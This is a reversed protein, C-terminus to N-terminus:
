LLPGATASVAGTSYAVAPFNPLLERDAWALVRGALSESALIVYEVNKNESLGARKRGHVGFGEVQFSSYRAVGLQAFADAVFDQAEFVTVITVVKAEETLM